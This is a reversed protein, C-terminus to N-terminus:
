RQQTEAAAKKQRALEDQADYITWIKTRSKLDAVFEKYSNQRKQNAIADKIDVQAETFPIFGAEKRELVRIIHFGREDEIIQSLKNLELTFLANDLKNSALVGQNTWDHLGGKSKTTDESFDRAVADFPAGFFVKNGMDAIKKWAEEKSPYSSFKVMLHEWKAKAPVAYKEPHAKYYELMELYSVDPKFNVRTQFLSQGLMLEGYGRIEKELSSGMRRLEIDLDGLSEIQKDIMLTALRPIFPDQKNLEEIEAKNGKEIKARAKMLNEEFRKRVKRDMERRAEAAKDKAKGKLEREFEQYFIKTEVISNLTQRFAQQFVIERNQEIQKRQEPSKIQKLYLEIQQNAKGEVDGYLVHQNGVIAIIEGEKYIRAGETSVEQESPDSGITPAATSQEPQAVPTDPPLEQMEQKTEEGGFSFGPLSEPAQTVPYVPGNQPEKRFLSPFQASCVLPWCLSALIAAITKGPRYM